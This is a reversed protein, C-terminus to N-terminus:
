LMLVGLCWILERRRPQISYGALAGDMLVDDSDLFFIYKGRSNRLGFNRAGSVGKSDIGNSMVRISLNEPADHEVIHRIITLSTDTSHDDVIVLEFPGTDTQHFVSLLTKEIYGASNHVPIIVSINM